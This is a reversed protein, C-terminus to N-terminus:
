RRPPFPKRYRARFVSRNLRHPFGIFFVLNDM